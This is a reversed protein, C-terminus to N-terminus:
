GDAAEEGDYPLREQGPVDPPLSSVSVSPTKTQKSELANLPWSSVCQASTTTYETESDSRVTFKLSVTSGRGTAQTAAIASQLLTQLSEKLGSTEFIAQIDIAM